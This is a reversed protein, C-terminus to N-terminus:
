EAILALRLLPLMIEHRGAISFGKGGPRKVVNTRPRYLDFMDLNATLLSDLNVGLNSAVAVAKLFVEPLVVASGVNLWAGRELSAVVSCVRRFDALTAAGLDAGDTEPHMHVVDTGIAVHVTAPIGASAAAALISIDRHPLKDDNIMAGLSEGLGAGEERAKRAAAALAEATERAMGFRGESLAEAVDESTSGTAALEWDHVAVAGNVAFGTVIGRRVLDIVIPSLGCKLVHAGMAMVIGGGESSIRRLSAVLEKFDKGALISPMSDILEEVSAGPAALTAFDDVCVLSKRENISIRKLKSLDIEDRM